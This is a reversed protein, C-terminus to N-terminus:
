NTIRELGCGILTLKIKRGDDMKVIICGLGMEANADISRVVGNHGNSDRVRDGPKLPKIEEPKKGFLRDLFGM